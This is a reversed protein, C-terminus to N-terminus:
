LVVGRDYEGFTGVYYGFQFVPKMGCAYACNNLYALAVEEPSRNIPCGMTMHVHDPLLAVQSMRYGHKSAVGDIMKSLGGLVDARIEMWRDETVIVVHLNYWYEGHSSFCPKGLDVGPYGRQYRALQEQVRPDVM